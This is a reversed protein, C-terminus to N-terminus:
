ELDTDDSTRLLERARRCDQLYPGPSIGFEGYRLGIPVMGQHPTRDAPNPADIRIAFDAFPKLAAELADIREAALDKLAAGGDWGYKRDRAAARRLKDSLENM